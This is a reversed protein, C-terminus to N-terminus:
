NVLDFTNIQEETLFFIDNPEAASISFNYFDTALQFQFGVQQYYNIWPLHAEHGFPFDTAVEGQENIWAGVGFQTNDGKSRNIGGLMFDIAERTITSNDSVHVDLQADRMVLGASFAAESSTAGDVDRMIVLNTNPYEALLDTLANSTNETIIGEIIIENNNENAEFVGFTTQREEIPDVVNDDSNCNCLSFAVICVFLYGLNKM